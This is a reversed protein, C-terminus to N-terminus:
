QPDKNVRIDDWEIDHLPGFDADSISQQFEELAEEEGDADIVLTFYGSVSATIEFSSTGNTVKLFM